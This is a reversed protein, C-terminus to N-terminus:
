IIKIITVLGLSVGFGITAYKLYNSDKHINNEKYKEIHNSIMEIVTDMYESNYKNELVNLKNVINDIFKTNIKEHKLFKIYRSIISLGYLHHDFFDTNNMQFYMKIDIDIKFLTIHGINLYDNNKDFYHVLHNCYKKLIKNTFINVFNFPLDKYITILLVQHLRIFQMLEYYNLQKLNTEIIYSHLVLLYNKNTHNVVYNIFIRSYSFLLNQLDKYNTIDLNIIEDGINVFLDVENKKLNYINTMKENINNIQNKKKM